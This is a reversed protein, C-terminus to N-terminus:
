ILRGDSLEPINALSAENWLSMRAATEYGHAIFLELQAEDVRWPGYQGVRIALLEGSTILDHVDDVTVSLITAVAEPSLFQTDPSFSM